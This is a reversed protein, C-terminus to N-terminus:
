ATDNNEEENEEEDEEHEKDPKGKEVESDKGNERIRYQYSVNGNEDTTENIKVEGKVGDVDYKLSYIVKGEEINRKFSYENGDEEVTVKYSDDESKIKLKIEREIMARTEVMHFKLTEEGDEKESKYTVKISDEGNTAVMVMKSEENNSDENPEEADLEDETTEEGDLEDDDEEIVGEGTEPDESFETYAEMVYEIGDVIILGTIDGTIEDTTYYIIFNLENVTFVLKSDYLPNDSETTTISGFGETGEDMFVRLRDMYVNVEDLEGEIVTTFGNSLFAVNSSATVPATNLLSNSLYSLTVLSEESTLASLENTTTDDIKDTSCGALGLTFLLATVLIIKKM